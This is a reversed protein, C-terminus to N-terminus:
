NVGFIRYLFADASLTGNGEIFVCNDEQYVKNEGSDRWVILNDSCDKEPLNEECPGYCASQVRQSYRGLNQTIESTVELNQSAIYLINGFYENLTKNISVPIQSTSEPSNLFSFTEGGAQFTWLGQANQVGNIPEGVDESVVSGTNSLFAFGLTSSVLTILLFISVIISNRKSGKDTQELLKRM